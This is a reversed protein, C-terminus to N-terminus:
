EFYVAGVMLIGQYGDGKYIATVFNDLKDDWLSRSAFRVTQNTDSFIVCQSVFKYRNYGLQKLKQKCEDALQKCLGGSTSADYKYNKLNSELVQELTPKVKISSFIKNNKPKLRYTNPCASAQRQVDSDRRQKESM